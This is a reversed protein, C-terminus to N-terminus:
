HGRQPRVWRPPRPGGRRQQLPACGKFGKLVARLCIVCSTVAFRCHHTQRWHQQRTRHQQMKPFENFTTLEVSDEIPADPKVREAVITSDNIALEHERELDYKEDLLVIGSAAEVLTTVEDQGAIKQLVVDEHGLSGEVVVPVAKIKVAVEKKNRSKSAAAVRKALAKEKQAKKFVKLGKPKMDNKTSAM